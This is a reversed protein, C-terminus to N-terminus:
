FVDVLGACIRMHPVMKPSVIFGFSLNNIWIVEKIPRVAVRDSFSSSNCGWQCTLRGEMGEASVVPTDMGTPMQSIGSDTTQLDGLRAQLSASIASSL